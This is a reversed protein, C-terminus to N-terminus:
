VIVGINSTNGSNILLLTIGIAVAMGLLCCLGCALLKVDIKNSILVILASTSLGIIVCYVYFM